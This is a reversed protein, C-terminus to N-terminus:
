IQFGTEKFDGLIDDKEKVLPDIWDAKVKAQKIWENSNNDFKDVAIIYKRLDEAVQWQRADSLLNKTLEQEYLIVERRKEEIECLNSILQLVKYYETTQSIHHQYHITKQYFCVLPYLKDIFSNKM